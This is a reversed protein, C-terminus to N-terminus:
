AGRSLGPDRKGVERRKGKNIVLDMVLLRHQTLLNERPILKYDKCLARDGKRLLLFDIQTKAVSSRFTILHDEQKM